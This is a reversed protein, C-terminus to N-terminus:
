GTDPRLLWANVMDNLLPHVTHRWGPLRVDDETVVNDPHRTHAWLRMVWARPTHPHQTLWVKANAPTLFQSPEVILAVGNPRVARLLASLAQTRQKPLVALLSAASVVDARGDNQGLDFVSGQLFQMAGATHARALALMHPDFDMGTAAYGREAALRTVLGPGCGVDLWTRQPHDSTAAGLPLLTVAERHLAEYFPTSQVQKFLQASFWSM